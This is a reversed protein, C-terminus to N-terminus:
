TTSIVNRAKMLPPDLALTPFTPFLKSVESGQTGCFTGFDSSALHLRPAYSGTRQETWREALSRSDFGRPTPQRRKCYVTLRLENESLPEFGFSKVRCLRDNIAGRKM